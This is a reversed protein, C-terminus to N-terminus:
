NAISGMTSESEVNTFGTKLIGDVLIQKLLEAAPRNEKTLSDALQYKGPTWIIEDLEKDDFAQRIIALLVKLRKDTVEATTQINQFLSRSDVVLTLKNVNAKICTKLFHQIYFAVSYGNICARSELALTSLDRKEMKRSYWTIPHLISGKKLGYMKFLICGEQPGNASADTYTVISFNNENPKPFFLVAYLTKAYKLLSNATKLDKVKLDSIKQALMSAIYKLHPVTHTGVWLLSGVLSQFAKREVDTVDDRPQKRRDKSLEITKINQLDDEQSLVISYDSNQIVNVGFFTFKQKSMKGMIFHKQLFEEFEKIANNSGTYLFDDVQMGIILDVNGEATKHVGLTKDVASFQIGFDKLLGQAYIFWIIPGDVLGYTTKLLKWYKNRNPGNQAEKPPVVYIDRNIGDTQLFATKIDGSCIVCGNEAAFSSIIKMIEPKISPSDTRQTDKQYDKNRHSVIRAKLQQYPTDKDKWKFLTHSSIINAAKPVEGKDVLEFAEMALWSEFEKKFADQFEEPTANNSNSYFEKQRTTYHESLQDQETQVFKQYVELIKSLPDEITDTNKPASFPIYGQEMNPTDSLTVNPEEVQTHTVQATPPEDDSSSDIYDPTLYDGVTPIYHETPQM